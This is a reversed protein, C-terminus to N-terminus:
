TETGLKVGRKGSDLTVCGFLHSIAMADALNRINRDTEIKPAIQRAFAVHDRHFAVAEKSDIVNSMVVRFGFLRGLEGTQLAMASGYRDAEVFEDIALLEAEQTPNIALWRSEMPVNQVNLLRRAEIIDAKGLTDDTANNAYLIRHDPAAASTAKLCGYVYDDMDEALKRGAKELADQMLPINAQVQAIDEFEYLVAKHQDLDLDDTSYTLIQAELETNESKTNVTPNGSRPIKVSKVGQPAMHQQVLPFLVASQILADQVISSVLEMSAATIETVGFPEHAM